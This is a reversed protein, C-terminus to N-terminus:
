RLIVFSQTSIHFYRGSSATKFSDLPHAVILVTTWIASRKGSTCTILSGITTPKHVTKLVAPPPQKEWTFHSHALPPWTLHSFRTQFCNHDKHNNKLHNLIISQTKLYSKTMPRNKSSFVDSVVIQRSFPLSLKLAM